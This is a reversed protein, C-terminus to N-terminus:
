KSFHDALKDAIVKADAWGYVEDNKNGSEFM